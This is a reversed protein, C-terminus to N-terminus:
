PSVARASGRTRYREPRGEDQSRGPAGTESNHWSEAPSARPDRARPFRHRGLHARPDGSDADRHVRCARAVAPVAFPLARPAAPSRRRDANSAREPSARAAARRPPTASMPNEGVYGRRAALDFVRRVPTVIGRTTWPALGSRRVSVILTALQDATIKQIQREGLVPIVHLDLASRYRELTREAREGAAVLAGFSALFEEAVEAFTIKSPPAIEGRRHKGLFEDREAKAETRTAARLTKMRWVGNADAYGVEYRRLGTKTTREYLNDGIRRRATSREDQM